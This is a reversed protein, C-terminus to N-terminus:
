KDLSDLAAVTAELWAAHDAPDARLLAHPIRSRGCTARVIDAGRGLVEAPVTGAAEYAVGRVTTDIIKTLLMELRPGHLASLLELDGAASGLLMCVVGVRDLALMVSGVRDPDAIYSEVGVAELATARTADRTTGRVAHGGDLLSRALALGRCGCGVILYRV